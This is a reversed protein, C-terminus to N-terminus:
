RWTQAERWRDSVDWERAWHDVYASDVHLGTSLISRIDDQDKPRWAILKHVLVDEITLPGGRARQIALEQYGTGAIIVDVRDDGRRARIPHPEGQDVFVDIEFGAEELLRPLRERWSALFDVDSTQRSELRYNDAAFAGAVAAPVGADRLRDSMERVVSDLRETENSRDNL